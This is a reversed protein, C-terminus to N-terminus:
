ELVNKENAKNNYKNKIKSAIDDARIKIKPLIPELMENIDEYMSYYPNRGNLLKQVGNEGM